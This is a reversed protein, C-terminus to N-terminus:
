LEPKLAIHLDKVVRIPMKKGNENVVRDLRKTALQWQNQDRDGQKELEL